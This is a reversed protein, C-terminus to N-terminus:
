ISDGSERPNNPEVGAELRTPFDLIKINRRSAPVTAPISQSGRDNFIPNSDEIDISFNDPLDLTQGNTQIEIM